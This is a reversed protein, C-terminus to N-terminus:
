FVSKKFKKCKKARKSDLSLKTFVLIGGQMNPAFFDVYLMDINGFTGFILFLQFVLFEKKM